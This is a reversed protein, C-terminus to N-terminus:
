CYKDVTPSHIERRQICSSDGIRGYYICSAIFVWLCNLLYYDQLFIIFICSMFFARIWSPRDSFLIKLCFYICLIIIFTFGLYGFDSLLRSLGNGAVMSSDSRFVMSNLGDGFFTPEFSSFGLWGVNLKASIAYFNYRFGIFISIFILALSLLIIKVRSRMIILSSVFFIVIMNSGTLVGVSLTVIKKFNSLYKFAFFFPFFSFIFMSPEVNWGGLRQISTYDDFSFSRPPLFPIFFNLIYLGLAISAGVTAVNTFALLFRNGGVTRVVLFSLTLEIIKALSYILQDMKKDIDNFSIQITSILTVILVAIFANVPIRYKCNVLFFYISLIFLIKSLYFATLSSSFFPIYVSTCFIILPM